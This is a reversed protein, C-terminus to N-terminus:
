REMWQTYMQTSILSPYNKLFDQFDEKYYDLEVTMKDLLELANGFKEKSVYLDFLGLYGAEFLPMTEILQEYAGITEKENGMQSYIEARIYDLLPDVGVIHDLSDICALSQLYYDQKYLANIAALYYGPDGPFNRQFKTTLTAYTSASQYSAVKIGSLLVTRNTQKDAPIKLWVKTAKAFKKKDVLAEINSLANTISITEDSLYLRALEPLYKQFNLYYNQKLKESLLEGSLFVYVDNIVPKSNKSSIYFEYYNLGDNSFSRFLLVSTNGKVYSHLFEFTGNNKIQNLFDAGMDFSRYFGNQYGLNYNQIQQNKSQILVKNLLAHRDFLSNFYSPNENILSQEIQNGLTHIEKLSFEQASLSHLSIFILFFSILSFREKQM